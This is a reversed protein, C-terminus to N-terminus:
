PLLNSGRVAIEAMASKERVPKTVPDVIYIIYMSLILLKFDILVGTMGVFTRTSISISFLYIYGCGVESGYAHANAALKFGV